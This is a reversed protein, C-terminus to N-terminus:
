TLFVVTLISLDAQLFFIKSDKGFLLIAKESVEEGKKLAKGNASVQGQTELVYIQARSINSLFVSIILFLITKKM